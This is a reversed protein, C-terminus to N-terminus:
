KFTRSTIAQRKLNSKVKRKSQEIKNVAKEYKSRLRTKSLAQEKSRYRRMGRNKLIKSGAGRKQENVGHVHHRTSLRAKKLAGYSSDEHGERERQRNLKRLMKRQEEDTAGHVELLKPITNERKSKKGNMKNLKILDTFSELESLEDHISDGQKREYDALMRQNKKSLKARKYHKAEYAEIDSRLEHVKNNAAKRETGISEVEEPQEGIQLQLEKEINSARLRKALREKAKEEGRERLDDNKHDLNLPRLKPAKYREEEEDEMMMDEEEESTYQEEEEDDRMKEEEETDTDSQWALEEIKTPKAKQNTTTTEEVKKAIEMLSEIQTKMQEDIPKMKELIMRSEVMRALVPHNEITEGTTKLILYYTIDMCYSLLTRYKTELYSYGEETCYKGVKVNKLIPKIHTRIEKIKIQIDKLLAKVLPDEKKIQESTIKEEEEKEEELKKKLKEQSRKIPSPFSMQQQQENTKGIGGTAADGESLQKELLKKFLDTSNSM